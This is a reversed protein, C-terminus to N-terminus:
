YSSSYDLIFGWEDAFDEQAKSFKDFAPYYENDLVDNLENYRNQEVTTYNEPTDNYVNIIGLQEVYEDNVQSKFVNFLELCANIFDNNGDFAGMDELVKTSKDIQANAADLAAQIGAPNDWDAMANDLDNIRDIVLSEEAILKDNYDIADQMTPGCQSLLIVALLAFTYIFKKKM